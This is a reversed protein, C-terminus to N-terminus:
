EKGPETLLERPQNSKSPGPFADINKWLREDARIDPCLKTKKKGKLLRGRREARRQCTQPLWFRPDGISGGGPASTPAAGLLLLACLLM